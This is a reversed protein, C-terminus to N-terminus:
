ACVYQKSTKEATGKSTNSTKEIVGGRQTIGQRDAIFLPDSHTLKVRGRENELILAKLPLDIGSTRGCKMLDKSIRPNDFIFLITPVLTKDIGAAGAAHDIRSFVTMGKEKLIGERRDTTFFVMHSSEITIRGDSGLAPTHSVMSITISVFVKFM